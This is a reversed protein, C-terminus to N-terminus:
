PVITLTYTVDQSFGVYPGGGYMGSFYVVHDGVSLPALMIWYGSSVSSGSTVGPLGLLNDEAPLTFDFLPSDVRFSSRLNKVAKGDITCSLTDEDSLYSSACALLEAENDGHYPPPEVTSCESTIIPFFIATGAPVTCARTVVQAGTFSGGLFWVPGSQGTDCGGNELLPHSAAPISFTWQWWAGSWEGYSMGYPEAAAPVVRPASPDSCPAVPPHGGGFLWCLLRIVDAMNIRGDGNIDGNKVRPANGACLALPVPACRGGMLYQILSVPDQITVTLDGNVDGNALAYGVGSTGDFAYAESPLFYALLATVVCTSFILGKKMIRFEKGEQTTFHHFRRERARGQRPGARGIPRPHRRPAYLVGFAALERLLAPTSGFCGMVEAM